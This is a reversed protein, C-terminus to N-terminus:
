ISFDQILHKMSLVKFLRSMVLNAKRGLPGLCLNFVERSIGSVNDSLVSFQEYLGKIESIDVVYSSIFIQLGNYRNSSQWSITFINKLQLDLKFLLFKCHTSEKYLTIDNWQLSQTVKNSGANCWWFIIACHNVSLVRCVLFFSIVQIYHLWYHM